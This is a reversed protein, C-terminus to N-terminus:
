WVALIRASEIERSKKIAVATTAASAGVLVAGTITWFWWTKWIPGAGVLRAEEELDVVSRPALQNDAAGFGAAPITTLSADDTPEANIVTPQAQRRAARNVPARPSGQQKPPPAAPVEKADVPKVPMKPRVPSIPSRTGSKGAPPRIPRVRASPGATSPTHPTSTADASSGASGSLKPAGASTAGAGPRAPRVPARARIPGRSGAGYGAFGTPLRQGGAKEYRTIIDQTLFVARAVTGSAAQKTGRSAIGAALQVDGAVEGRVAGVKSVLAEAFKYAEISAGLLDLDPTIDILKDWKGSHADGVFLTAKYSSEANYIGGMVVLDAGAQKAAAVSRERTASTLTNLGLGAGILAKNSRPGVDVQQSITHGARVMVMGGWIDGDHVVRLHHEGELIAHIVLPTAGMQRGNLHVKAGPANAVVHVNGRQSALVRARVKDIISRFLPPYKRGSLDLGPRLTFIRELHRTGEKEQGRRFYAEALMLYTEVVKNYDEVFYLNREFLRIAKKLARIASDFRLRNFAADGKMLAKVAQQYDRPSPKSRPAPTAAQQKGLIPAWGGRQKLEAGLANTMEVAHEPTVGEGIPVLSFIMVAKDKAIVPRAPLVTATMLVALLWLPTVPRTM